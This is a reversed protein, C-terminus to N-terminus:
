TKGKRAFCAKIGARVIRFPTPKGNFWWHRCLIEDCLEEATPGTEARRGARYGFRYGQSSLARERETCNIKEAWENAKQSVTKRASV